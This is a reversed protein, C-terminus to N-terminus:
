PTMQCIVKTHHTEEGIMLILKNNEAFFWKSNMRSFYKFTITHFLKIYHINLDKSLKNFIDM